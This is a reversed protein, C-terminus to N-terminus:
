YSNLNGRWDISKDILIIIRIVSSIKLNSKIFDSLITSSYELLTLLAKEIVIPTMRPIVYPAPISM